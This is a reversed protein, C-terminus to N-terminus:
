EVVILKGSMGRHGNGCPVTCRVTFSGVETATFRVVTEQNPRIRENIRFASLGFGHAVDETTLRLEVEQGKRVTIEGPLFEFRKAAVGLIVRNGTSFPAAFPNGDLMVPGDPGPFEYVEAEGEDIHLMAFLRETAAELAVPVMVNESTGDPIYAFGLVQGPRGDADAHVVIWGPTDTHASQVTVMGDIIPQDAVALNLEADGFALATFVLCFSVVLIVRKNDMRREQKNM